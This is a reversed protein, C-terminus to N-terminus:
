EDIRGTPNYIYERLFGSQPINQQLLHLEFFVSYWTTSKQLSDGVRGGVHYGWSINVIVLRSFSEYRRVRWGIWSSPFRLRSNSSTAM